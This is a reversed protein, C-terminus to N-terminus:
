RQPTLNDQEVIEVSLSEHEGAWRYMAEVRHPGHYGHHERLYKLLANEAAPQTPFARAYAVLGRDCVVGIFLPAQETTMRGHQVGWTYAEECAACLTRRQDGPRRVSVPVEKVGPSECYQNECFKKM